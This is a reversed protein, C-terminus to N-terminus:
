ETVGPNQKPPRFSQLKKTVKLDEHAIETKRAHRIGMGTSYATITAGFVILPVGFPLTVVAASMVGGMVILGLGTAVGAAMGASYSGRRTSIAWREWTSLLLAAKTNDSIGLKLCDVIFSCTWDDCEPLRRKIPHGAVCIKFSEDDRNLICQKPVGAQQLAELIKEKMREKKADYVEKKREPEYDVAVRNAFTLVIIVKVWLREGFQKLLFQMFEVDVERVHDDMRLCYLIIDARRYYESHENLYKQRNAKKGIGTLAEIGPTDNLRITISKRYTAKSSGHVEDESGEQSPSREIKPSLITLNRPTVRETRSPEGVDQENPEMFLGNILTTKGVGTKGVVLLDVSPDDGLKQVINKLVDKFDTDPEMDIGRQVSSRREGPPSVCQRTTRGDNSDRSIPRQLPAEEQGQNTDRHSERSEIKLPAQDAM